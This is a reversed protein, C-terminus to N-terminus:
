KTATYAYPLAVVEDGMTTPDTAGNFTDVYLTGSVVQGVSSAAPKLTVTIQGSSGPALVLPQFTSTGNVVDAWADGASSTVAPDFALLLATATTTVPTTPAGSATFPGILSPSVYWSSYPVEPEDVFAAVTNTGVPLAYVDPSGGANPGTDMSIPASSQSQIVLASTETPVVLTSCTGPLTAPTTPSCLSTPLSLSTRNALRADVFYSETAVGSNTVDLTVTTGTSASVHTHPSDPLSTATAVAANLTVKASFQVSTLNGAAQTEALILAWQGAQPTARQLQLATTSPVVTPTGGEPTVLGLNSATDLVMGNPDILFGEVGYGGEPLTIGVGLSQIGAPVDFEYTKVPYIYQRANGGTLTGTFAGGRGDLTVLTRV